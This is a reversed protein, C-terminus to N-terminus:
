SRRVIARDDTSPTCITRTCSEADARVHPLSQSIRRHQHMYSKPKSTFKIAAKVDKWLRRNMGLRNMVALALENGRLTIRESYMDALQGYMARGIWSNVTQYKMANFKAAMEKTDGYCTDSMVITGRADRILVNPSKPMVRQLGAHDYLMRMIKDVDRMPIEGSMEPRTRLTEFDIPKPQGTDTTKCVIRRLLINIVHHNESVLRRVLVSDPHAM